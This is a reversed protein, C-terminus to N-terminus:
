SITSIAGAPKAPAHKVDLDLANMYPLQAGRVSGVQQAARPAAHRARRRPRAYPRRWTRVGVWDPLIEALRVLVQYEHGNRRNEAGSHGRDALWRRPGMRPPENVRANITTPLSGGAASSRDWRIRCVRCSTVQAAWVLEVAQHAVGPSYPFGARAAPQDLPAADNRSRLTPLPFVLSNATSCIPQNWEPAAGLEIPM